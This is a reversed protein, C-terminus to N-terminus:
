LPLSSLRTRPRRSHRAPPTDRPGVRARHPRLPRRRLRRLQTNTNLSHPTPLPHDGSAHRAPPVRQAHPTCYTPKCAACACACRLHTLLTRTLAPSNRTPASLMIVCALGNNIVIAHPRLTPYLVMHSANSWVFSDITYKRTTEDVVLLVERVSSLFAASQCPLGALSAYATVAATAVIREGDNKTRLEGRVPKVDKSIENGVLTVALQSGFLALVGVVGLCITIQMAKAQKNMRTTNRTMEAMTENVSERVSYNELAAASISGMRRIPSPSLGESIPKAEVDIQLSTANEAGVDCVAVM